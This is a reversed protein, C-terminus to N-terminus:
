VPLNPLNPLTPLSPVPISFGCGLENKKNELANAILNMDRTLENLAEAANKYMLYYPKLPMFNIAALNIVAQLIGGINKVDLSTAFEYLTLATDLWAKVPEVRKMISDAKGKFLNEFKDEVWEKLEDCNKISEIDAILGDTFKNSSMKADLIKVNTKYNAIDTELKKIKKEHEAYAPDTPKLLAMDEKHMQIQAELNSIKSKYEFRQQEDSELDTGINASSFIANKVAGYASSTATSYAEQASLVKAQIVRYVESNIDGGNAIFEELEKTSKALEKSAASMLIRSAQAKIDNPSLSYGM